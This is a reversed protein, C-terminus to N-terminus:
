RVLSLTVSTWDPYEKEFADKVAERIHQAEVGVVKVTRDNGDERNVTIWILTRANLHERVRDDLARLEKMYPTDHDDHYEELRGIEGTLASRLSRLEEISFDM